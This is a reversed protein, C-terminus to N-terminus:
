RTRRNRGTRSSRRRGRPEIPWQVHQEARTLAGRMRDWFGPRGPGGDGGGPGGPPQKRRQWFALTIAGAILGVLLGITQRSPMLRRWLTEIAEGVFVECGALLPTEIRIGEYLVLPRGTEPDLYLVVANPGGDTAGTVAEELGEVINGSGPPDGQGARGPIWGRAWVPRREGNPLTANVLYPGAVFSPVDAEAFGVYNALLDDAYQEIRGRSLLGGEEALEGTFFEAPPNSVLVLADNCSDVTLGAQVVGLQPPETTATEETFIAILSILTLIILSAGMFLLWVRLMSVREEADDAGGPPVDGPPLGRLRRARARAEALMLRMNRRRRQALRLRTSREDEPRTSAM